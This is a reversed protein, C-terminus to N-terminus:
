FLLRMLQAEIETPPGELTKTFTNQELDTHIMLDRCQSLKEEFEEQKLEYKRDDNEKKKLLPSFEKEQLLRMPLCIGEHRFMDETNLQQKSLELMRPCLSESHWRQVPSKFVHLAIQRLLILELQENDKYCVNMRVWTKRQSQCRTYFECSDYLMSTYENEAPGHEIYQIEFDSFHIPFDHLVRISMQLSVLQNYLTSYEGREFDLIFELIRSAQARNGAIRLSPVWMDVMDYAAMPDILLQDPSCLCNWPDAPSVSYCQTQLERMMKGSKLQQYVPANIWIKSKSSKNISQLSLVCEYVTKWFYFANAIDIPYFAWAKKYCQQLWRTKNLLTCQKPRTSKVHFSLIKWNELHKEICQELPESAFALLNKQLMPKSFTDLATKKFTSWGEPSMMFNAFRSESESIRKDYKECATEFEQQFILSSAKSQIRHEEIEIITGDVKRERHIKKSTQSVTNTTKRTKSIRHKFSSGTEDITRKLLSSQSRVHKYTSLASIGNRKYLNCIKKKESSLRTKDEVTEAAKIQKTLRALM